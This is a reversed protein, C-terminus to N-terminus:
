SHPVAHAAEIFKRVKEMEKMGPMSSEVGSAVDVAYPQVGQVAEAVNEPTLGGALYLRREPFRQKFTLALDWPFTAGIGGRQGPHYADLLVDSVAYDAIADLTAEDRVQFAKIVPLGLAMVAECDAPSEDGHLQIAYLSAAAVAERIYELDANVFVGILPVDGAEVAMLAAEELPLHRKSQPWFNLGIFDAGLAAIEPVQEPRTVGCIKVKTRASSPLCPNASTESGPM